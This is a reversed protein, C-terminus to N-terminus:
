SKKKSGAYYSVKEMAGTQRSVRKEENRGCTYGGEELQIFLNKSLKQRKLNCINSAIAKRFGDSQQDVIYISLTIVTIKRSNSIKEGQFNM